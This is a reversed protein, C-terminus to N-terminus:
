RRDLSGCQARRPLLVVAATAVIGAVGVVLEMQGLPITISALGTWAFGACVVLLLVVLVWSVVNATLPRRWMTGLTATLAVIFLLGALMGALAAFADGMAALGGSPGSQVHFLIDLSLAGWFIAVAAGPWWIWWPSEHEAM